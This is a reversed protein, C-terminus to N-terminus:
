QNLKEARKLDCAMSLTILSCLQLLEGKSLEKELSTAIRGLKSGTSETEECECQQKVYGCKECYEM